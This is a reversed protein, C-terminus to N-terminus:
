NEIADITTKILQNMDIDDLGLRVIVLDHSPVIIIYQGQYGDAYFIDHPCDPFAAGEKNLWFHAGYKGRSDPVEQCTYNVWNEPLIRNGQWVGDHLYLRGFRLWDRATAYMYSSAILNGAEDSEILSHDMGIPDFLYTYPFSHYDSLSKFKSRIIGSLLNSSGSSYVWKPKNMKLNAVYQPMDGSAFLMTTAESVAAYDETWELGANMHLLDNIAINKRRDTWQPFLSKDHISIKNQKSLIGIMANLVSKTMSWGLLKTSMNIGKAYSEAILTDKHLILLARTKKASITKGTDFALQELKEIEKENITTTKSRIFAYKSTDPTSHLVFNINYDDKGDLLICGLGNRYVATKPSLGFVSATASKEITDIKVKAWNLPSMALDEALIVDTPRGVLYTCSCATRAAYGNLVELQPYYKYGMFSISLLIVFFMLKISNKVM